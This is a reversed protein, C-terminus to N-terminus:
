LAGSVPAIHYTILKFYLKSAIMETILAVQASSIFAQSSKGDVAETTRMVAIIVDFKMTKKKKQTKSGQKRWIQSLLLFSSILQNSSERDSLALQQSANVKIRQLKYNSLQLSHSLVSCVGIPSRDM